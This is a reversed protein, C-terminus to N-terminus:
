IFKLSGKDITVIRDMKKALENNHTAILASISLQKTLNQLESFVLDATQSDLNGTPEDALLIRPSHVIARLIAVRQQEGGSLQSPKHNWRKELHFMELSLMGKEKAINKNVGAILLPMMVNELATFEPLLHHAQYVFGYSQLRIQAARDEDFSTIKEGLVTIEGSDFHDLLGLVHLFTSKGVGSPAILAVIEGENLTFNINKLIELSAGAQAYSKCLNTVELVPKNM